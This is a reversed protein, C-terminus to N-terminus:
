REQWAIFCCADDWDLQSSSLEYHRGNYRYVQLKRQPTRDISNDEAPGDREVTATIRLDNWGQPGVSGIAVTFSASEWVADPCSRLCGKVARARATSLGLVPRLGRGEPVFLVLEDGYSADAASPGPGSNAYRVGLARVGPALAYNATDLRLSSGDVKITADEEIEFRRSHQPKLTRADVFALVGTWRRDPSEGQEFTMVAAVVKGASPPWPKCHAGAVDGAIPKKPNIGRLADEIGPACGSDERAQVAGAAMAILCTLLTKKV